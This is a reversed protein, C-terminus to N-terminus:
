DKGEQLASVRRTTWLKQAAKHTHTNHLANFQAVQADRLVKLARQVKGDSAQAGGVVHSRILHICAHALGGPMRAKHKCHGKEQALRFGGPMHAALQLLAQM